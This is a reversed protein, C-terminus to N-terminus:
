EGTWDALLREIKERVLARADLRDTGRMLLEDYNTREHRIAM